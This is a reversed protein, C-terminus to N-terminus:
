NLKEKIIRYILANLVAYAESDNLKSKPIANVYVSIVYRKEGKPIIFTHSVTGGDRGGKGWGQKDDAIGPAAFKPIGSHTMRPSHARTKQIRVIKDVESKHENYWQLEAGTSKNSTMRQLAAFFKFMDETTQKHTGWTFTSKRSLGLPDQVHRRVDKEGIRGLKVGRSRMYPHYIKKLKKQQETPLSKQRQNYAQNSATRAAHKISIARNIKNSSYPGKRTRRATYTLIGGIEDDTLAKDKGKYHILQALAAMTKPSSAGYIARDKKHTYIDPETSEANGVSVSILGSYLKVIEDLSQNKLLNFIKEIRNDFNRPWSLGRDPNIHNFKAAGKGLESRSLSSRKRKNEPEKPLYKDKFQNMNPSGEPIHLRIHWHDDHGKGAPALKGRYNSIIGPFRGNNEEKKAYEHLFKIVNVGTLVAEVRPDSLLSETFIANREMDFFKKTSSTFKLNPTKGVYYYYVDVELGSQHGWRHRGLSPAWGGQICPLSPDERRQAKNICRSLSAGGLRALGTTKPTTQSDHVLKAAKDVVDAVDKHGHQKGPFKAAFFSPTNKLLVQLDEGNVFYADNEKNGSKAHKYKEKDYTSTDRGYGQYNTNRDQNAATTYYGSPTRSPQNSKIIVTVGSKISEPARSTASATRTIGTFNSVPADVSSDQASTNNVSNEKFFDPDEKKMEGFTIEGVCADECIGKENQYKMIFTRTESGCVGDPQGETGNGFKGSYTIKLGSDNTGYKKALFQQIKEISLDTGSDVCGCPKNEGKCDETSTDQENILQRFTKFLDRYNM